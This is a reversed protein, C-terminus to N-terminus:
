NSDLSPVMGGRVAAAWGEYPQHGPDAGPPPESPRYPFSPRNSDPRDSEARTTYHCGRVAWVRTGCPTLTRIEGRASMSPSDALAGLETALPHAPLVTPNSKEAKQRMSSSGALASAGTPLRGPASLRQSELEGDEAMERRNADPPLASM